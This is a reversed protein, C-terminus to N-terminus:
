MQIATQALVPVLEAFLIRIAYLLPHRLQPPLQQDRRVAQMQFVPLDRSCGLKLLVAFLPRKLLATTVTMQTTLIALAITTTATIQRVLPFQTAQFQKVQVPVPMIARGSMQIQVAQIHVFEEQEPAAAV